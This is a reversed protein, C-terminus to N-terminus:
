KKRRRMRPWRKTTVVAPPKEDANKCTANPTIKKGQRRQAVQLVPFEHGSVTMPKGNAGGALVDWWNRREKSGRACLESLVKDILAAVEEYGNQHLWDRATM